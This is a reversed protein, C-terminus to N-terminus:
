LRRELGLSPRKVLVIKPKSVVACATALAQQVRGSPTGGPQSRCEAVLPLLGYGSDLCAKVPANERGACARVLLNEGVAMSFYTKRGDPVNPMGFRVIKQVCVDLPRACSPVSSPANKTMGSVADITTARGVGVAGVLSGIRGEPAVRSICHLAGIGGSTAVLDRIDRMGGQHGAAGKSFERGEHHATAILEAIRKGFDLVYVMFCDLMALEMHRLIGVNM